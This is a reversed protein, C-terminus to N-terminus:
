RGTLAFGAALPTNRGSLIRDITTRAIGTLEHVRVKTLGAELAGLVLADRAEDQQRQIRAWGTLAYEAAEQEPTV